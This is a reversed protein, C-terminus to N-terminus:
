AIVLRFTLITPQAFVNVLQFNVLTLNALEV